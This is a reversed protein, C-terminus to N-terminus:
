FIKKYYWVLFLVFFVFFCFWVFLFFWDFDFLGFFWFLIFILIGDFFDDDFDDDDFLSFDFIVPIFENGSYSFDFKKVETFIM